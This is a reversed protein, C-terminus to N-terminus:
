NFKWDDLQKEHKGLYNIAEHVLSESEKDLQEASKSADFDSLFGEGIAKYIRERAEGNDKFLSDLGKVDKKAANYIVEALDERNGLKKAGYELLFDNMDVIVSEKRERESKKM